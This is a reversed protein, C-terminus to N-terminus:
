DDDPHDLLYRQEARLLRRARTLDLAALAFWGVALALVGWSRSGTFISVEIVGLIIWVVAFMMRRLGAGPTPRWGPPIPGLGLLGVVRQRLSRLDPRPM